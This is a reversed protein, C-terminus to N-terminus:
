LRDLFRHYTGNTHTGCRLRDRHKIKPSPAALEKNGTRLGESCPFPASVWIYIYIYICM